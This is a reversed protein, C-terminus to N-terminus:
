ILSCLKSIQRSITSQPMRTAESLDNISIGPNGGIQLLCVLNERSINLEDLAPASLVNLLTEHTMM